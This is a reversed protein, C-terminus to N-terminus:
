KIMVGMGYLLLLGLSVGGFVTGPVPRKEMGKRLLKGLEYVVEFIAGAAVGMFLAALTPSYILGGIWAGAIAPAGAILGFGLLRRVPPRDRLIPAIIGLGETINQIIFGIVLFAGLALQNQSYAAGIGLGEGLNHLGIGVAILAAVQLRKEKPGPAVKLGQRRSIMDLALFTIVLGMGVLGVGQFPAPVSGALELGETLTEIGLFILLGVTVALLFTMSGPGMRRLAPFWALGLLVPIIGVYLGILTFSLLTRSTARPTSAAAEVSVDFAVSNASMLTIEYAEGRVWTYPIHIAARGLRPITSGGEVRFHWVADNIVVSRITLAQPSTNRVTLDFRDPAMVTREVILSEIPVVPQVRLGANHTRLFVGIVGGLLLLPGLALVITKAPIRWARSGPGAPAGRETMPRRGM